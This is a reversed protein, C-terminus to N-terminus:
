EEEEEEEPEDPEGDPEQFPMVEDLWAQLKRQNIPRDSCLQNIFRAVHERDLKRADNFGRSYDETIQM